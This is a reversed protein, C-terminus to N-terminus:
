QRVLTFGEHQRVALCADAHALLCAAPLARMPAKGCLRPSHLLLGRSLSFFLM